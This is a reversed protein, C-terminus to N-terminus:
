QQTGSLLYHDLLKVSVRHQSATADQYLRWFRTIYWGYDQDAEAPTTVAPLKKRAYLRGLAVAAYSDYIPVAPNHFHLYKSAFSRPSKGGTTIHQLLRVFRGHADVITTLKDPELPEQVDGLSGIIADVETGHKLLHAAVKTLSGGQMGPEGAVRREIGTAYTRSVIWLKANVEDILTHGPHNACLDHLTQDLLAWENDYRECLAGYNSWDM